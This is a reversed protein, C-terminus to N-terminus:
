KLSAIDDMLIDAATKQNLTAYETRVAELKSHLEDIKEQTLSYLPMSLLMNSYGVMDVEVAEMQKIIVDKSSKELVIAKDIVSEIFKIKMLLEDINTQMKGLMSTKRKNNYELRQEYWYRILDIESQFSLVKNNTGLATYNETVTKTLKLIQMIKEDTQAGFERTTGILFKFEDNNSEDAYTKIKGSEVLGELVNIYSSLDYGIPLETITLQTKTNREFIGNIYWQGPGGATITGKFGNYHPTISSPTNGKIIQKVANVIDKVNRPLIKQSYGVSVGNSGNVLLFPIIPVFFRPEINVGEFTQHELIDYDDKNFYKAIIPNAKATIYRTAAAEQIFRTGFIGDGLLVPVNNSGVFDQTLNVITGELSGHLYETADQIKSALNNVKTYEKLNYNLSYHLIKRSANKMGDVANAIKRVNDYASYATYDTEFFETTNIM